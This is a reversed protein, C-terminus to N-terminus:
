EQELFNYDLALGYHQTVQDFPLERQGGRTFGAAVMAADVDPIGALGARAFVSVQMRYSRCIEMDDAHQMPPSDVLFYVIFTDPLSAATGVLKQGASVAVGLGALAAAVREWISM